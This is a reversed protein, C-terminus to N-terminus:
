ILGNRTTGIPGVRRCLAGVGPRGAVLDDESVRSSVVRWDCTGCHGGDRGDVGREEARTAVDRVRAGCGGGGFRHERAGGPVEGDAGGITRGTGSWTDRFAGTGSRDLVCAESRM